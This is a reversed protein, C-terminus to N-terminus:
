TINQIDAVNLICKWQQVGPTEINESANFICVKLQFVVKLHHALQLVYNGPTFSNSIRIKSATEYVNECIKSSRSGDIWIFARCVQKNKM